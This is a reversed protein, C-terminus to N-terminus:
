IKKYLIYFLKIDLTESFFQGLTTRTTIMRTRLLRRGALESNRETLVCLMLILSENWIYYNSVAHIVKFIYLRLEMSKTRCKTLRTKLNTRSMRTTGLNTEGSAEWWIEGLTWRTCIWPSWPSWFTSKPKWTVFHKACKLKKLIRKWDTIWVLIVFYIWLIQRQNIVLMNCCKM